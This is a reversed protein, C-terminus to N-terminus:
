AIVKGIRICIDGPEVKVKLGNSYNFEENEDAVHYEKFTAMFRPRHVGYGNVFEVADYDKGKLRSMIWASPKRFELKKEGTVMVEFAKKHLTLKLVRKQKTMDRVGFTKIDM